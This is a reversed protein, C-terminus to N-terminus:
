EEGERKCARHDKLLGALVCAAFTLAILLAAGFSIIANTM